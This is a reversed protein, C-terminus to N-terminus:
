RALATHCRAAPRFAVNVVDYMCVTMMYMTQRTKANLTYV